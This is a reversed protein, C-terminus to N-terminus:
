RVEKGSAGATAELPSVSLGRSLRRAELEKVVQGVIDFRQAASAATLANALAIEVADPAPAAAARPLLAGPLAGDGESESESAASDQQITLSAEDEGPKPEAASLRLPEVGKGHVVKFANPFPTDM